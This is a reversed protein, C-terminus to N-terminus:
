QKEARIELVMFLDADRNENYRETIVFGAKEYLTIARTSSSLTDLYMERYGTRKAEAIVTELLNRGFGRGQFRKYLYLSKLECCHEDMKKLAATGIVEKGDLMIWFAEFNRSVNLYSKHKGNLDLKRGSEPLCNGLFYLLEDAYEANYRQIQYM